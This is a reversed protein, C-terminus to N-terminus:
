NRNKVLIWGKYSTKLNTDPEEWNLIYWYTGTSAPRGSIKGDWIYNQNESRFVTQGLRDFIEISVNNKMKLDSYDLVDNVGDGNPTIVNILNVILFEKEIIYCGDASRVYAKHVGRPVNYFVNSNQYNLNDLSYQYPTTGGSAYVTATSGSVDIHTIVPSESATVKVHQRYMCGNWGLDVYYEGVPVDITQSTENTSWLYSDFGAGADLTVAANECIVIEDQLSTSKKPQKFIFKLPVYDPCFGPKEFKVFITEDNKLTLESGIKNEPKLGGKYFTVTYGTESTINQLYDELNITEENNLDDDCIQFPAPATLPIKQGFYFTVPRIEPTCNFATVKIYLTEPNSTFTYNTFDIIDSGDPKKHYSLTFYDPNLNSVISASYQNLNEIYKGDLDNDCIKIPNLNFQPEPAAEIMLNGELICGSGMTIEVRYNGRQTATYAPKHATGPIETDDRFWHYDSAGSVAANIIHSDGKCLPNGNDITLDKGLDKNGKFSGAKLFVASDFLGTQDGEDAIVLKIHYKKGPTVNAIAPLTKTQGNFNTPTQVGNFGGFYEINKECGNAGNISTSSVPIDTGPVLAINEYADTTGAEKILFAFADSYKCNSNRYEESLFMYDFRIKDSYTSIFDFELITANLIYQHPLGAEILVNELDNDGKWNPEAFESNYKETQIYSNPGVAALASGTSLIIGDNIEFNSSGKTFYGYSKNGSGFDWGTIQVDSVTICGSNSAGIFKQVLQDPTDNTEVEIYQAHIFASGFFFLVASFLYIFFTNKMDPFRVAFTNIIVRFM